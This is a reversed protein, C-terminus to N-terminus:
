DYGMVENYAECGGGMGAQMAQERKWDSDDGGKRVKCRQTIEWVDPGDLLVFPTSRYYVMNFHADLNAVCERAEEITAFDCGTNCTDEDLDPNTDWLTVSYPKEAGGESWARESRNVESM